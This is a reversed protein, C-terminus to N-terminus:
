ADAGLASLVWEFSNPRAQNIVEQWGLLRHEVQELPLVNLVLYLYSNQAAILESTDRVWTVRITAGKQYWTLGFDRERSPLRRDNTAYFEDKTLAREWINSRDLNPDPLNM